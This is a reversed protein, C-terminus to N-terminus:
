RLPWLPALVAASLCVVEGALCWLALASKNSKGEIAPENNDYAEVCADGLWRQLDEIAFQTSIKKWQEVEPRSDWKTYLFSWVYFMALSIYFVFGAVLAYRAFPSLDLLSQDTLLFGAVIPLVASGITFYSTSRRDISDIKRFQSNLKMMAVEYYFANLERIEKAATAEDTARSSPEAPRAPCLLEQLWNWM